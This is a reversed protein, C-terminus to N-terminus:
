ADASQPTFTAMVPDGGAHPTAQAPLALEIEDEDGPWLGAIFNEREVRAGADLPLPAVEGIGATLVAAGTEGYIFPVMQTTMYGYLVHAAAGPQPLLWETTGREAAKGLDLVLMDVEKVAAYAVVMDDDVSAAIM